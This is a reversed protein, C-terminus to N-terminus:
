DLSDPKFGLPLLCDANELIQICKKGDLIIRITSKQRYETELLVQRCSGCPRAPDEILGGPNRATVVLTKVAESPFNAGAYFLAVREACLGDTFDANEQNNAQLIEGNELELVAGVKFGSYPAYADKSIERAKLILQQDKEPLDYLTDYEYVIIRLEKTRM